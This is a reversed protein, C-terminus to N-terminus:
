IWFKANSKYKISNNDLVKQIFLIKEKEIEYTSIENGVENDSLYDDDRM